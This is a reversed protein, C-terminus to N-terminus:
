RNCFLDTFAEDTGRCFYEAADLVGDLTIRKKAPEEPTSDIEERSRMTPVDTSICADRAVSKRVTENKDEALENLVEMPTRPNKAVSCRVDRYEDKALECLTEMPINTNQAAKMRVIYQPDRALKALIKPDTGHNLAIKQREYVNGLNENM